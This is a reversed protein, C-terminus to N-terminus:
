VSRHRWSRPPNGYTHTHTHSFAVSSWSRERCTCFFFLSFKVMPPFFFYVKTLLYSCSKSPSVRVLPPDRLQEEQTGAGTLTSCSLSTAHVRQGTVVARDESGLLPPIGPSRSEAATQLRNSAANWLGKEPRTSMQAACVGEGFM